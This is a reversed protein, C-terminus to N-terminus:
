VPTSQKKAELKKKLLKSKRLEQRMLLFRELTAYFTSTTNAASTTKTSSGGEIARLSSLFVDALEGKFKYRAWQEMGMIQNWSPLRGPVDLRLILEGPTTPTPEFSLQQPM